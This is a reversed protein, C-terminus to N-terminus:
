YEGDNLFNNLRSVVANMDASTSDITKPNVILTNLDKQIFSMDKIFDPAMRSFGGPNNALLFNAQEQFQQMKEQADHIINVRQDAPANQVDRITRQMDSQIDRLQKQESPSLPNQSMGGYSNSGGVNTIRM